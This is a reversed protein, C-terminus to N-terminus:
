TTYTIQDALTLAPDIQLYGADPQYKVDIDSYALAGFKAQLTTIKVDVVGEAAQIADILENRVLFGNFPLNAIYTNIADEVPYIGSEALSQGDADLVLPDYYLDLEINLYDADKSIVALDTGAFKILNMYATFADKEPTSLAEPTSGKAVKVRVQGGVEQASARTIIKSASDIPDYVYKDGDWTLDDGHQYLLAQDRYWRVTGPIIEAARAEVDVKHEEFLQEHIWISVAMIWMILRWVAVKSSSALSSLLSTYTEPNPTLGDLSSLTQKETIVANYIQQLTRAM